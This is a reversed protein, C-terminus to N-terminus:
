LKKFDPHHTKNKLIKEAEERTDIGTVLYDGYALLEGRSFDTLEGEINYSDVTGLKHNVYYQKM